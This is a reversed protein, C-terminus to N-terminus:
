EKGKKFKAFKNHESNNIKKQRKSKIKKAKSPKSEIPAAENSAEDHQSVESGVESLIEDVESESAPDVILEKEKQKKNKKSM